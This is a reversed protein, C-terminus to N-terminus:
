SGKTPRHTPFTPGWASSGAVFPDRRLVSPPPADPTELLTLMMGAAETGLGFRDFRVRGLAPWGTQTEVSDDCCVIGFDYGPTKRLTAVGQVIRRAVPLTGAVIGEGSDVLRQLFPYEAAFDDEPYHEVRVRVRGSRAASKAGAERSAHSHHSLRDHSRAVFVVSDYGLDALVKVCAQGAAREDRRVCCTDEWVPSDVWIM